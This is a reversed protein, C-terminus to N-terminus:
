AQMEVIPRAPESSRSLEKIRTKGDRINVVYTIQVYDSGDETYHIYGNPSPSGGRLNSAYLEMRKRKYPVLTADVGKNVGLAQTLLGGLMTNSIWLRGESDLVYEGMGRGLDYTQFVPCEKLFNPVDGPLSYHCTVTDFLSM